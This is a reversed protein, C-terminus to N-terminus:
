GSHFGALTRGVLRYVDANFGLGVHSGAVVHHTVNPNVEDICAQWSVVGDTKSYIATIPTTIPHRQREAMLQNIQAPTLGTQAMVLAGISTGRVGGRM